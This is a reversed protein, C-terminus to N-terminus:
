ELNSQDELIKSFGGIEILEDMFHNSNRVAVSGYTSFAEFKSAKKKQAGPM